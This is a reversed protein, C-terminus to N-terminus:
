EEVVAMWKTSLLFYKSSIGIMKLSRLPLYKRVNSAMDISMVM